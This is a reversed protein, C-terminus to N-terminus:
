AVWVFNAFRYILAGQTLSFIYCASLVVTALLIKTRRSLSFSATLSAAALVLLIHAVVSYRIMGSLSVDYRSVVSLAFTAMAAYYLGVRERWFDQQKQVNGPLVELMLLVLFVFSIYVVSFQSWQDPSGPWVCRGYISLDALAAFHPQTNWGIRNTQMYLDWQGFKAACFLFFFLAGSAVFLSLFVHHLMSFTGQKWTTVQKRLIGILALLVPLVSVPFGVMRAACMIFGHVGALLYGVPRQCTSLWYLFGMLGFLFLSESYAAVLYFASPYTLMGVLASVQVFWPLRMRYLLLLIYTWVGWCALQSAILLSVDISFGTHTLFGAFLPFGPFFAINSGNLDQPLPPIHTRYGNRIISAFWDGDGSVLSLYAASMTPQGSVLCASMIQLLTIGLAICLLRAVPVRSASVGLIHTHQEM